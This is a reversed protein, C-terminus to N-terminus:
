YSDKNHYLFEAIEKFIVGAMGSGSAPIEKRQVSVLVTYVPNKAPFYGCFDATLTSDKNYTTGDKGAM